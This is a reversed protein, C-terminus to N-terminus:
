PQLLSVAQGEHLRHVGATVLLDGEVLGEFVIVDNALQDSIKVPKLNVLGAKQDVVWVHPQKEHILISSPPVHAVASGTNKAFNIRASMGLEIQGSEEDIAVKTLYTRTVKDAKPAIERVHGQFSQKPLAWIAISVKDDEKVGQILSEPVEVSVEKFKPRAVEVLRQGAALVQGVEGYIQTVVGDSDAHLETYQMRNRAINVASQAEQVQAEAVRTANLQAEHQSPSILKQKLLKEFRQLEANARQYNAQTVNLKANAQELQLEYDRGDIKALLEGKKVQAGVDVYRNILKGPVQFGLSSVYRAQVEGALDLAFNSQSLTVVQTRVPRIIQTEGEGESSCGSLTIAALLVSTIKIWNM